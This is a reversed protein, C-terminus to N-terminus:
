PRSWTDPTADAIRKGLSIPKLLLYAFTAGSPLTVARHGGDAGIGTLVCADSVESTGSISWRTALALENATATELVVFVQHVVRAAAGARLLVNLVRASTNAAAIVDGAATELKVLCLTKDRLQRAVTSAGLAGVEPVAVDAHIDSGRVTVGELDIRTVRQIPLKERPLRAQSVLYSLGGAPRKKQGVDGLHVVCAHGRFYDVSDFCFHDERVTANTAM